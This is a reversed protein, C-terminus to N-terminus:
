SEKVHGRDYTLRKMLVLTSLLPKEVSDSQGVPTGNTEVIRSNM